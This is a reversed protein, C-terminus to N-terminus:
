YLALIDTATTNTSMVKEPQIPLIGISVSKFTVATKQGPFMVAVDGSVGIYLSRVGSLAATDSPTVATANAAPRTLESM